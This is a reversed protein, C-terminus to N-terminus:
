RPARAPRAMRYDRQKADWRWRLEVRKGTSWGGPVAAAGELWVGPTGKLGVSEGDHVAEVETWGSPTDGRLRLEEFTGDPAVVVCSWWARQLPLFVSNPSGDHIMDKVSAFSLLHLAGGREVTVVPEGISPVPTIGRPTTIAIVARDSQGAEGMEPPAAITIQGIEAEGIVASRRYLPEVSKKFSGRDESSPYRAVEVHEPDAPHYTMWSSRAFAIERLKALPEFAVPQPLEKYHAQDSVIDPLDPVEVTAPRADVWVGKLPAEALRPLGKVPISAEVRAGDPGARLTVRAGEVPVVGGQEDAVGVGAPEIRYWRRLQGAHAREVVERARESALCKPADPAESEGGDERPPACGPAVVAMVPDTESGGVQVYAGVPPLDSPTGSVGLWLGGKNAPDLSAAVVIGESGVAVRVSAGSTWGWEALEGDVVLGAPVRAVDVRLPAAAVPAPPAGPPPVHVQGAPPPPAGCGAAGLLFLTLSM